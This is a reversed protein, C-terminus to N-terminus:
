ATSIHCTDRQGVHCILFGTDFTFALIISYFKGEKLKYGTGMNLVMEEKMFARQVPM